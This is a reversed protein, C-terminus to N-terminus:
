SPSLGLSKLAPEILRKEVLHLIELIKAHAIDWYTAPEPEPQDYVFRFIYAMAIAVLAIGVAFVLGKGLQM